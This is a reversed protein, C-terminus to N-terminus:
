HYHCKPKKIKIRNKIPCGCDNCKEIRLTWGLINYGKSFFQCEKCVSYRREREAEDTFLDDLIM